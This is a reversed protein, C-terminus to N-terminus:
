WLKLSFLCFVHVLLRARRCCACIHNTMWQRRWNFQLLLFETQVVTSCLSAPMKKEACVSFSKIHPLSLRSPHPAGWLRTPSSRNEQLSCSLATSMRNGNNWCQFLVPAPNSSLAGLTWTTYIQHFSFVSIRNTESLLCCSSVLYFSYLLLFLFSAICNLWHAGTTRIGLRGPHDCLFPVSSASSVHVHRHHIAVEHKWVLPPWYGLLPSPDGAVTLLSGGAGRGAEVKLWSM